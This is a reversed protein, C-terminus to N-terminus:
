NTAEETRLGMATRKVLIIVEQEATEDQRDLLICVGQVAWYQQEGLLLVDGERPLFTKRMEAITEKGNDIVWRIM